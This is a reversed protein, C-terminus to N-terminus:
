IHFIALAGTQAYGIESMGSITYTIAGDSITGNVTAMRDDGSMRMRTMISGDRYDRTTTLNAVNGIGKWTLDVTVTPGAQDTWNVTTPIVAQVTAGDTRGTVQLDATTIYGYYATSAYTCSNYQYIGVDAYKTATAPAPLAHSLDQAVFVQVTTYIGDACISTDEGFYQAGATFGKFQCSPTGDWQQPCFGGDGGGSAHAARGGVLSFGVVAVVCLTVFLGLAAFIWRRRRSTVFM